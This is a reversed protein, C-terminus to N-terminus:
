LSAAIKKALEVFELPTAELVVPAPHYSADEGKGPVANIQLFRGAWGKEFLRTTRRKSNLEVYFTDYAISKAEFKAVAYAKGAVVHPFFADDAAEPKEVLVLGVISSMFWPKVSGNGRKECSEAWNTTGGLKAVEELSFAERSKDKGGWKVKERWFTKGFGVVVIRNGSPILVSQGLCFQGVAAVKKMADGSMSQVLNLYPHRVRTNATDPTEDDETGTSFAAVFKPPIVAPASAGVPNDVVEANAPSATEAETAPAVSVPQTAAGVKAFSIAM